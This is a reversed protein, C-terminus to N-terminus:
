HRLGPASSARFRFVFDSAGAGQGVSIQELKLRAGGGTAAPIQGRAPSRGYTQAPIRGDQIHSSDSLIKPWITIKQKQGRNFLAFADNGHRPDSSINVPIGFGLSEALEQVNNNWM